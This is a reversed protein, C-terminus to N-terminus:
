FGPLVPDLGITVRGVDHQVPRLVDIGYGVAHIDRLARELPHGAFFAKRSSRSYLRSVLDRAVEVAHYPSGAVTARLGVPPDVGRERYDWLADLAGTVGYHLIDLAVSAEALLELVATSASASAGFISSVKHKLEAAASTVAGRLIGIPVAANSAGPGDFAGCRYLPRDIRAPATTSVVLGAPVALDVTAVVHSGTGRMSVADQWVEQVQLDATRIAAQRVKPREDPRRLLCFVLAWDADLVGTMLPWTGTLSYGGDSATLRGAPAASFGFNGLPALYIEPWFAPDIWAAARALGGSNVMYWAASPDVSAVTETAQFIETLTAEAGGVEVPAALGFMGAERLATVIEPALRAHQESFSRNAQLLPVVASAREMVEGPKGM